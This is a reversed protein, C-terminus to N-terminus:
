SSLDVIERFLRVVIFVKEFFKAMNYFPTGCFTDFTQQVLHTKRGSLFEWCAVLEKPNELMTRFGLGGGVAVAVLRM